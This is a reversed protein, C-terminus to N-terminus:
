IRREVLREAGVPLRRRYFRYALKQLSVPGLRVLLRLSPYIMRWGGLKLNASGRCYVRFEALAKKFRRRNYFDDTVRVNYLNLPINAFRVGSMAARFWLEIDEVLNHSSSESYFGAKSFFSRRYCVSAHCLPSARYLSKVMDSHETPFTKQRLLDGKHNMENYFTGCLDVTPNQEM